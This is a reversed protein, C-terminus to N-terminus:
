NGRVPKRMREVVIKLEAGVLLRTGQGSLEKEGLVSNERETILTWEVLDIREDEGMKDKRNFLRKNTDVFQSTNKVAWAGREEDPIVGENGEGGREGSWAGM